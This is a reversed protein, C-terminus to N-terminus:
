RIPLLLLALGALQQDIAYPAVAKQVVHDAVQHSGHQVHAPSPRLASPDGSERRGSGRPRRDSREPARVKGAKLPIRRPFIFRWAKLPKRNCSTKPSYIFQYRYHNSLNKHAIRGLDFGDAIYLSMCRIEEVSDRAFALRDDNGLIANRLSNQHIDAGVFFSWSRIAISCTIPPLSASSTLSGRERM